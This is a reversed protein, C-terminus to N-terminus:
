KKTTGLKSALKFDFWLKHVINSITYESSLLFLWFSIQFVESDLYIFLEM